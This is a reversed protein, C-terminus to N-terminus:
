RGAEQAARRAAAEARGREQVERGVEELWGAVRAVEPDARDSRAASVQARFLRVLRDVMRGVREGSFGPSALERMVLVRLLEAEAALPGEEADSALAQREEATFLARYIGSTRRAM